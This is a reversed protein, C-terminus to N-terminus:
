PPYGTGLAQLDKAQQLTAPVRYEHQRASGSGRAHEAVSQEPSSSAVPWISRSRQQFVVRRSVAPRSAIAPLCRFLIPGFLHGSRRIASKAERRSLEGGVAPPVRSSVPIKTRTPM